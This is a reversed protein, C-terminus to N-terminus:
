LSLCFLVSSDRAYQSLLQLLILPLSSFGVNLFIRLGCLAGGLLISTLRMAYQLPVYFIYAVVYLLLGFTHMMQFPMDMAEGGRAIEQHVNRHDIHTM